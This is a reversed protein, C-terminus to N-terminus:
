EPFASIIQSSVSEIKSFYGFQGAKLVVGDLSDIAEPDVNDVYDRNIGSFYDFFKWQGGSHLAGRWLWINPVRYSDAIVLGHLSTSAIKKCSSILRMVKPIDKDNLNILISNKSNKQLRDVWDQKRQNLHVIIGWEYVKDKSGEWVQSCLIGPDGYPVSYPINLLSKTLPGRLLHIKYKASDIKGPQLTGSGWINYPKFRAPPWSLISGVSLLDADQISAKNIKRKSVHSVIHPGIEDGLNIGSRPRWWFLNIPRGTFGLTDVFKESFFLYDGAVEKYQAAVAAPAPQLRFKEWSKASTASPVFKSSADDGLPTSKYYKKTQIHKLSFFADNKQLEVVCVPSIRNNKEVFIAGLSMDYSALLVRISSDNTMVLNEESDLGLSSGDDKCVYFFEVPHQM